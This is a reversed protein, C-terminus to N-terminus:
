SSMRLLSIDRGACSKIRVFVEHVNACSPHPFRPLRPVRAQALKRDRRISNQNLLAAAASQHLRGPKVPLAPNQSSYSGRYITKRLRTRMNIGLRL